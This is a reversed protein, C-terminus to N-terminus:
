RKEGRSKATIINPQTASHHTMVCRNKGKEKSSGNENKKSGKEKRKQREREEEAKRVTRRAVKAM